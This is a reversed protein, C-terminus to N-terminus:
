PILRTFIGKEERNIREAMEPMVSAKERDTPLRRVSMTEGSNIRIAPNARRNAKPSILNNSVEQSACALCASRFQSLIKLGRSATERPIANDKSLIAAPSPMPKERCSTSHAEAPAKRRLMTAMREPQRAPRRMAQQEQLCKQRIPPM